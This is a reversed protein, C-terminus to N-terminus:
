FNSLIVWFLILYQYFIAVISKFINLSAFLSFFYTSAAKTLTGVIALLKPANLCVIICLLVPKNHELIFSHYIDNFVNILLIFKLFSIPLLAYLKQLFFYLVIYVPLFNALWM